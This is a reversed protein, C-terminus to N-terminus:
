AAETEHDCEAESGGTTADLRIMGARWDIEAFIGVETLFDDFAIRGRRSLIFRQAVLYVLDLLCGSLSLSKSTLIHFAVAIPRQLLSIRAQRAPAQQM